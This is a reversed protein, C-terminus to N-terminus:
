IRGYTCNNYVAAGCRIRGGRQDVSFCVGGVVYQM